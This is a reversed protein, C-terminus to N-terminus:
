RAVIQSAPATWEWESTTQHSQSGVVAGLAVAALMLVGAVWRGAKHAKM